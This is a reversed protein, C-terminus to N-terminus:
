QSIRNCISVKWIKWRAALQLIAEGGSVGVMTGGNLVTGTDGDIEEPCGEDVCVVIGSVEANM